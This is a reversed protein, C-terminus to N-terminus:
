IIFFSKTAVATALKTDAHLEIEGESGDCAAAGCVLSIGMTTIAGCGNGIPIGAQNPSVTLLSVATNASASPMLESALPANCFATPLAKARIQWSM